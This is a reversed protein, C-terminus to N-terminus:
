IKSFEQWCMEVYEEVENKFRSASFKEAWQRIELANFNNKIKEFKLVAEVLSEWSQEAFFIGTKNEVVTELAGGSRYAIVPKGCAMAEVASIGFDEEQPFIFAKADQLLRCKEQETVEGVFKINTKAQSILNAYEEGAGVVVLPLGLQNFAKVALDVRKYPRLRSVIIYYDGSRESVAFQDVAVPPYIVKADRRYYKKIRKAVFQSNAIFYDVRQAAQFDWQRLRNLMPPLFFKIIKPQNLEAVYSQADSWLYRTPSHCYSIHMTNPPMLLGKCFASSSSIIVEYASFDFQEWALPMLPLFWKFHRRAGWLRNIFSTIIKKKAFEKAKLQDFVLTYIPALHYIEHISLLVNEAGGHQFLHDHVLAVKNKNIM